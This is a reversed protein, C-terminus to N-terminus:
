LILLKESRTFSVSEGPKISNTKMGAELWSKAHSHMHGENNSWWASYNYASKPLTFGLIKEIKEYTLTESKPIKKLYDKLPDYKSVGKYIQTVFEQKDQVLIPKKPIKEKVESEFNVSVSGNWKPDIEKILEEEIRSYNDTEYFKLEIKCGKKFESLILSNNKCNTNQGGEFCNRPSINGYGNNYRADLDVCKGIYLIKDNVLILYVGKKGLYGSPIMFKCFPGRGYKNLRHNNKNYYRLHPQYEIIKRNSDKKPIIICVHKFEDLNNM